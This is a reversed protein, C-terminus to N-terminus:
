PSRPSYWLVMRLRGRAFRGGVAMLQERLWQFKRRIRTERKAQFMLGHVAGFAQRRLLIQGLDFCTRSGKNRSSFQHRHFLCPTHFIGSIASLQVPKAWLKLAHLTCSSCTLLIWESSTKRWILWYLVKFVTLPCLSSSDWLRLLSLYNIWRHSLKKFVGSSSIIAWSLM